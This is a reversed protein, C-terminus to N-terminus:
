IEEGNIKTIEDKGPKNNIKEQNNYETMKSIQTDVDKYGEESGNVLCIKIINEFCYNKM